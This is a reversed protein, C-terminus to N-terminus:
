VFLFVKALLLSFAFTEVPIYAKDKLQAILKIWSTQYNSFAFTEFEPANADLIICSYM